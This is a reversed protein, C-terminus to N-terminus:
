EFWEHILDFVLFVVCLGVIMLLIDFRPEPGTEDVGVRVCGAWVGSAYESCTAASM